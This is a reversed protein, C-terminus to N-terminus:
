PVTCSFKRCELPGPLNQPYGAHSVLSERFMHPRYPPMVQGFGVCTPFGPAKRQAIWAFKGSLDPSVPRHEPRLCQVSPM